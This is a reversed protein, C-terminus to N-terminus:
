LYRKIIPRLRKRVSFPILRKPTVIATKLADKCICGRDQPIKPIVERLIRKANEINKSLNAIVMEATVPESSIYWCDYDTVAAITTYCIEAERALKAEPMNTMGIIDIGLKRYIESEAKTSFAPGEMNIYTQGFHVSLGMEKTTEYILKALELCVPDSFSIHAVIGKEFFTMKRAQNTRDIFQTPIVFDLPKLEEKLSGCASVSIIRNVGLVKFGYINARFNLESPSIRHGIGHRPLFVVERNELRGLIFRDSALGFPTKPRVRKINKLGEIQYLGSGGIIGVRM